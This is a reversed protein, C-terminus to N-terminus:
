NIDNSLTPIPPHRKWTDNIESASYRTDGTLENRALVRGTLDSEQVNSSVTIVPHLTGKPIIHRASNASHTGNTNEPFASKVATTVWESCMNLSLNAYKRRWTLVSELRSVPRVQETAYTRRTKQM